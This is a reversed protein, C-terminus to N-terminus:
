VFRPVPVKRTVSSIVIFCQRVMWHFNMIQGMLVGELAFCDEAKAGVNITYKRQYGAKPDNPDFVKDIDVEQNSSPPQKGQCNVNLLISLIVCLSLRIRHDM